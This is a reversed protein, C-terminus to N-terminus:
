NKEPEGSSIDEVGDSVEADAEEELQNDIEQCIINLLYAKSNKEIERIKPKLTEVVSLTINKELETNNTMIEQRLDQIEKNKNLMENRIEKFEADNKNKNEKQKTEIKDIKVNMDTLNAKIRATEKACRQTQYKKALKEEFLMRKTKVSDVPPPPSDRKRKSLGRPKQRKKEPGM